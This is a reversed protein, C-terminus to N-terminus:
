GKIEFNESSLAYELYSAKVGKIGFVITTGDV